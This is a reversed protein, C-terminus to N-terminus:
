KREGLADCGAAFGCCALLFAAMAGIFVVDM